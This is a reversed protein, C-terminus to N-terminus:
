LKAFFDVASQVVKPTNGVWVNDDYIIFPRKLFTYEELMYKRFDDETLKMEHLGLGRYKLARKSFLDEYTGGTKEKVWDLTKGDINTAKIDILEVDKPPKVAAIIKACTDCTSLYYIARM